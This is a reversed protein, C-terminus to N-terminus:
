VRSICYKNIITKLRIIAKSRKQNFAYLRFMENPKLIQMLERTIKDSGSNSQACILLKSDKQLALVQKAYEVLCRTKGTGFPGFILYPATGNTGNLMNVIAESQEPNAKMKMDTWRLTEVSYKKPVHEPISTPWFLDMDINDISRHRLRMPMRNFRFRVNFLTEPKFTRHFDTHFMVLISKEKVKYVWGEYAYDTGGVPWAFVYDNFLVSPRNEALGPVSIESLVDRTDIGYTLGEEWPVMPVTVDRLDYRHSKKEQEVEEIYLLEHLRQKWNDKVKWPNFGHYTDKDMVQQHIDDPVPYLGLDEVYFTEAPTHFHTTSKREPPFAPVIRQPFELESQQKYDGKKSLLAVEDLASLNVILHYPFRYKDVEITLTQMCNAPHDLEHSFEVDIDVSGSPPIRTKDYRKPIEFKFFKRQGQMRVYNLTKALPTRNQIRVKFKVQKQSLDIVTDASHGILQVGVIQQQAINKTKKIRELLREHEQPNKVKAPQMILYKQNKDCYFSKQDLLEQVVSPDRFTLFAFPPQQDVIFSEVLDYEAFIEELDVENLGDINKLWIQHESVLIKNEEKPKVKHKSGSKSSSTSWDSM